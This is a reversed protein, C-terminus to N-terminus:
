RALQVRMFLCHSHMVQSIRSGAPKAGLRVALTVSTAPKLPLCVSTENAVKLSVLRWEIGFIILMIQMFLLYYILM